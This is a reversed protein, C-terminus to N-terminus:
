KMSARGEIRAINSVWDIRGVRWLKATLPDNLWKAMDDFSKFSQTAYPHIALSLQTTNIRCPAATSNRENVNVHPEVINHSM